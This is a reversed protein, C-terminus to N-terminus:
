LTDRGFNRASPPPLAKRMKVCAMRQGNALVHEGRERTEYGLSEYFPAATVSSDCQLFALGWERAIQELKRVLASGVGSRNAEPAVYCARLEANTAVLAAVGVIRGGTEAVLRLEGEPNARVFAVAEDTIQGPAWADIVEPPYDNAAVGRVAAHHTELFARADETRMERIVIDTEMAIKRDIWDPTTGTGSLPNTKMHVM